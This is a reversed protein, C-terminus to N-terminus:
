HHPNQPSCSFSTLEVTLKGFPTMKPTVTFHAEYSPIGDMAEIAKLIAQDREDGQVDDYGDYVSYEAPQGNLDKLGEANLYVMYKEDVYVIPTIYVNVPFPISSYTFESSFGLTSANKKWDKIEPCNHEIYNNPIYDWIFFEQPEEKPIKYECSVFMVALLVLVFLFKKM